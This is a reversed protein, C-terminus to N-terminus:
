LDWRLDPNAPALLSVEFSDRGPQDQLIEIYASRIVDTAPDAIYAMDALVISAHLKVDAEAIFPLQKKALLGDRLIGATM